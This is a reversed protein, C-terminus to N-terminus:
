GSHINGPPVNIFTAMKDGIAERWVDDYNELMTYYRIAEPAHYDMAAYRFSIINQNYKLVIAQTEEIPESM